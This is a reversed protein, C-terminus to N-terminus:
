KDIIYRTANAALNSLKKVFDGIVKGRLGLSDFLQQANQYLFENAEESLYGSGKLLSRVYEQCNNNRGDYLYFDFPHIKIANEFFQNLTLQNDAPINEITYCDKAILDKDSFEVISTKETKITFTDEGNTLTINLWLHFIDDMGRIKLQENFTGTTVYNFLNRIISALPSRCLQLGIIRYNGYKALFEVVYRSPTNYPDDFGSLVKQYPFLILNPIDKLLKLPIYSYEKLQKLFTPNFNVFEEVKNSKNNIKNYNQVIILICLLLLVLLLVLIIKNTNM